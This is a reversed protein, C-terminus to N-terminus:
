AVIRQAATEGRHVWFHRPRRSFPYVLPRQDLLQGVISTEDEECLVCCPGISLVVRIAAM